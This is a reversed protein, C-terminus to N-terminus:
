RWVKEWYGSAVLSGLAKEYSVLDTVPEDDVVVPKLLVTIDAIPEADDTGEGIAVVVNTVEFVADTDRDRVSSGIQPVCPVEWGFRVASPQKLVEDIDAGKPFPPIVKFNMDYM